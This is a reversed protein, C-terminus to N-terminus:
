ILIVFILTSQIVIKNKEIRNSSPDPNYNPKVKFYIHVFSLYIHTYIYIALAIYIYTSVTVLIRIKLVSGRVMKTRQYPKSHLHTLTSVISPRSLM